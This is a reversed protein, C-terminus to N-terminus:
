DEVHKINEDHEYLLEGCRVAKSVYDQSNDKLAYRIVDAIAHFIPDHQYLDKMTKISEM